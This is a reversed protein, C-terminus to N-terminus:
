LRECGRCKGGNTGERGLLAEGHGVPGCKDTCHWSGKIPCGKLEKSGTRFLYMVTRELEHCAESRSSRELVDEEESGALSVESM